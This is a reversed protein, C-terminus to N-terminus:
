EPLWEGDLLWEPPYPCVAPFIMLPLDTEDAATYRADEYADRLCADFEPQLSPNDRLLRGIRRRQEAITSRWSRGQLKPQYQWKLLHVLLVELRNTLQRRESRGMSELEEILNDIDLKAYQHERLLNAQEQTWAYFDREYVSMTM